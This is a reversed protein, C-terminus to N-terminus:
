PRDLVGWLDASIRRSKSHRKHCDGSKKAAEQTRSRSQLKLRADFRSAAALYLLAPSGLGGAGVVLVGSTKLKKQGELGVEPMILHRGYRRLEDRSLQTEELTVTHRDM